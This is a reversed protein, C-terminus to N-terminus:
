GHLIQNVIEKAISTIALTSDVVVFKHVNALNLYEDKAAKLLEINAEYKDKNKGKLRKLLANLPTDLLFTIDPMLLSYSINEIIEQTRYYKSYALTSFYWRDLIVVDYYKTSQKINQQKDYMDMIYLAQFIDSPIERKGNLHDYIIKGFYAEENPFHIVKTTLDRKDLENTIKEIVSSKGSGDIGEVCIIRNM